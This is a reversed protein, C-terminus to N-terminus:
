DDEAEVVVHTFTGDANITAISGGDLQERDGSVDLMTTPHITNPLCIFTQTTTSLLILILLHRRNSFSHVSCSRNKRCSHVVCKRGKLAVWTGEDEGFENSQGRGPCTKAKAKVGPYKHQM